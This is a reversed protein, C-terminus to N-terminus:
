HLVPPDRSAPPPAAFSTAPSDAAPFHTPPVDGLHLLATTGSLAGLVTGLAEHYKHIGGSDPHDGHGTESPAISEHDPVGASAHWLDHALASRQAVLLAIALLVHAARRIM